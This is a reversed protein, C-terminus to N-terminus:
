RKEPFRRAASSFVRLVTDDEAGGRFPADPKGIVAPYATWLMSAVPCSHSWTPSACRTPLHTGGEGEKPQRVHM